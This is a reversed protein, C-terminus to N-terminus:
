KILFKKGNRIYLGRVPKVIRRGSLDFVDERQSTSAVDYSVSDLGDVDEGFVMVKVEGLSKPNGNRDTVNVYWRMPNLASSASAAQRLAGGGMAYYGNNLMDTGSIGSYSGTVTFLTNWSSVDHSQEEAAYLTANAPILTKEGASKARILYPTNPETTGSTLKIVELATRDIEGDNDDDWQHVDNLRCIEFDSAWNEYSLKLPVYLAQWSTNSFTRVYRLHAFDTDKDNSYLEGDTLTETNTLVDTLYGPNGAADIHAYLHDIHAADYTTGNGGVVSMCNQFMNTSNTVGSTTWLDSVYITKLMSCGMFMGSMDTALSTDLYGLDLTTLGSCFFFWYATSTPRVDAFSSEVVVNKLTTYITTWWAPMNNGSQTVDTGSWVASIVQASSDNEPTFTDGASLAEDRKTFYLTQNAACWIAYIAGKTPVVANPSRVPRVTLGTYRPNRIVDVVNSRFRMFYANYPTDEVNNRTWYYCQIDTQVLSTGTICGAAPLFISNGNSNSTILRGAVGNLTTWETSTYESNLLEEVQEESPTLWNRGWNATAADDEVELETLNDVTGNKSVTCYKTLTTASGNCWKYSGWNNYSEKTSTEGWAFYNGFQEPSTAGVNCTAWLTGSPLGLDVFDYDASPDSLKNSTVTIACTATVGGGDAAACTITCTGVGVGVVKGTTSVIAVKGNSSSWTVGTNQATTPTVTATLGASTGAKLSLSTKDLVIKKVMVASTQFVTPSPMLSGTQVSVGVKTKEKIGPLNVSWTGNTVTGEYMKEGVFVYVKGNGSATGSVVGKSGSTLKTITPPATQNINYPYSAGETINWQSTFDFGFGQYTTKRMLTNLGLSSGNCEDDEVTTQLNNYLLTTTSLAYNNAHAESFIRYPHTASITDALCVNNMITFWDYKSNLSGERAGIIGCINSTGKITGGAINRKINMYIYCSYYNNTIGIFCKGIVGGGNSKASLVGAFCNDYINPYNYTQINTYADSYSYHYGAVEGMIGGVFSNGEISLSSYNGIVNVGNVNSGSGYLLRGIVGGVYSQGKVKGGVCVNNSVNSKAPKIGGLVTGVYNNGIVIPNVLCINSITCATAYGILGVYDVSPKNIYLGKISKNNGDFIGSFPTTTTGIPTWGQSPSEAAIWETLDIDNMLKYYASLSNRVEFLQEANTIQYPDSSTGSGAGSFQASVGLSCLMCVALLLYKKM